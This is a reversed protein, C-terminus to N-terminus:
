TVHIRSHFVQDHMLCEYYCIFITNRTLHKAVCVVYIFAPLRVSVFGHIVKFMYLCMFQKIFKPAAFLCHQGIYYVAINIHYSKMLLELKKCVCGYSLYHNM